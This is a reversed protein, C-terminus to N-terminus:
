CIIILQLGDNIRIEKIKVQHGKEVGTDWQSPYGIANLGIM